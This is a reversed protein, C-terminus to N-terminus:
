VYGGEGTWIEGCQPEVEHGLKDLRSTRRKTSPPLLLQARQREQFVLPQKRKESCMRRKGRAASDNSRQFPFTQPTSTFPRM